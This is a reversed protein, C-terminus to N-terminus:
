RRAPRVPFEVQDIVEGGLATATLRIRDGDIEVLVFHTIRRLMVSEPLRDGPVYLTSSGGGSIIYTVGNAALREYHHYHGSFTVPVSAQEFLPLWEYRVPLSDDPHVSSSNLPPVHLVPVSAEYRPDALRGKLWALEEARGPAGGFVHSDLMVFQIGRRAFAYYQNWAQDGQDPFDPDPFAPFAHYYFPEGQWLIDRDYDHNGIVTYVPMQRLLPEFPAYFTQRYVEFPDRGQGTEDVVDGTQLVFDLDAAAMQEVLAITAPDGFSADGVVGIRIPGGDSATEFSVPGWARTVFAPQQLTQGPAELAVVVRYRAGPVLGDASWLFRAQSASLAQEIAPGSGSEPRVFVRGASPADLEFFLTASNATVHRVTLPIAYAINSLPLNADLTPSPAATPTAPADPTPPTTIAASPDPRPTALAPAALCATLILLALSAAMPRLSAHSLLETALRSMPCRLTTRRM